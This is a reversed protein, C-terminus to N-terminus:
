PTEGVVSEEEQPNRTSVLDTLFPSVIDLDLRPDRLGVLRCVM